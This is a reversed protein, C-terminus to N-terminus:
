VVVGTAIALFIDVLPGFGTGLSTSPHIAGTKDKDRACDLSLLHLGAM